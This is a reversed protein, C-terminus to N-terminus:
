LFYFIVVQSCWEKESCKKYRQLRVMPATSMTTSNLHGNNRTFTRLELIWSGVGFGLAAAAAVPPSAARICEFSPSTDQVRWESAVRNCTGGTKKARQPPLVRARHRGKAARDDGVVGGGPAGLAPSGQAHAADTLLGWGDLM